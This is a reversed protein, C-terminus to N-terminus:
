LDKQAGYELSVGPGSKIFYVLGTVLVLPRTNNNNAVRWGNNLTALKEM